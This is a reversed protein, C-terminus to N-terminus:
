SPYLDALSLMAEGSFTGVLGLEGTMTNWAVLHHQPLTFGSDRGAALVSLLVTVKDLWQVPRVQDGDVWQGSHGTLPLFARTELTQRDLVVVGDHDSASPPEWRMLDIRTAAIADEFVVLNNLGGLDGTGVAATVRRPGDWEALSRPELARAVVRGDPAVDFAASDGLHPLETQASSDLDVLYGTRYSSLIV